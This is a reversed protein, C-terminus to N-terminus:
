SEVQIELHTRIHHHSFYMCILNVADIFYRVNSLHRVQNDKGESHPIKFILLSSYSMDKFEVLSKTACGQLSEVLMSQRKLFLCLLDCKCKGLPCELAKHLQLFHRGIWFIRRIIGVMHQAKGAM